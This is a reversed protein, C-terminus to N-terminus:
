HPFYQDTSFRPYLIYQTHWGQILMLPVISYAVACEVTLASAMPWSGTGCRWTTEHVSQPKKSAHTNDLVKRPTVILLSKRGPLFDKVRDILTSLRQMGVGRRLDGHNRSVSPHRPSSTNRPWWRYTNMMSKKQQITLLHGSLAAAYIYYIYIIDDNDDDLVLPILSSSAWLASVRAKSGPRQPDLRKYLETLGKRSSVSPQTCM